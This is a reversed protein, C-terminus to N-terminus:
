ILCKNMNIMYNVDINNDVEYLHYLYNNYVFYYYNNHHIVEKVNMKYFYAVFNNM